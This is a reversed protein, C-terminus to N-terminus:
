GCVPEVEETVVVEREDASCSRLAKEKGEQLRNCGLVNRNRKWHAPSHALAEATEAGHEFLMRVIEDRRVVM